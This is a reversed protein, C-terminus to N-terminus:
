VQYNQWWATLTQVTHMVITLYLSCVRQNIIASSYVASLCKRQRGPTCPIHCLLFGWMCNSKSVAWIHFSAKWEPRQASSLLMPWSVSRLRSEPNQTRIQHNLLCSMHHVAQNNLWSHFLKRNTAVWSQIISGFWKQFGSMKWFSISSHVLRKINTKTRIHTYTSQKEICRETSISFANYGLTITNDYHQTM